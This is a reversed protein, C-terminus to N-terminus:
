KNECACRRVILIVRIQVVRAYAKRAFELSICRSAVIYGTVIVDIFEKTIVSIPDKLATFVLPVGVSGIIKHEHITMHRTSAM